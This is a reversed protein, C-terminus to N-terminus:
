ETEGREYLGNTGGKREAYLELYDTTLEQRARLNKGVYNNADSEHTRYVSYTKGEYEIITEGEYDGAFVSFVLEPNLGNRGGGFFEARNVSKVKCFVQRKMPTERIVGDEDRESEESVLWIVADM